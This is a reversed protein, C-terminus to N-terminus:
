HGVPELIPERTRRNDSNKRAQGNLGDVSLGNTSSPGEYKRESTSSARSNLKEKVCDYTNHAQENRGGGACVREEVATPRLMPQRGSKTTSKEVHRM